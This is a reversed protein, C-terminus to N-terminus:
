CSESSPSGPAWLISAGALELSKGPMLALINSELVGSGFIKMKKSSMAPCHHLWHELDEEDHDCRPCTVTLSAGIKKQYAQLAPHTRARLRAINTQDKRTTVEMEDRARSYGSYIKHIRIDGPDTPPPDQIKQRIRAWESALSVPRGADEIRTADKAALDAAENGPVGCHSPVWQIIIFPLCKSIRWLTSDVDENLSRLAQCLSLCDTCITVQGDLFNDGIFELAANMASVEEEYSSTRTAGKVTITEIFQPDAPDGSTVVVGAGGDTTGSSASGDTYIVVDSNLDRIRTITANRM